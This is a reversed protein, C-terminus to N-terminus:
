YIARVQHLSFFGTFNSVLEKILDSYYEQKERYRETLGVRELEISKIASSTFEEFLEETLRDEQTGTDEIV